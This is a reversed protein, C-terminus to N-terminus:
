PAGEDGLVIRYPRKDHRCHSVRSGPAATGIPWGHEHKLGCFPCRVKVVRIKRVSVDTVLADPTAGTTEDSM